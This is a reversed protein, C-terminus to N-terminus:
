GTGMRDVCANERDVVLLMTYVSTLPLLPPANLIWESVPTM